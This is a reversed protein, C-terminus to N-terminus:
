VLLTRLYSDGRKTIAGLNSKGGSFNQRPKLGLFAAFQAGNKFQKFYGVTAVM